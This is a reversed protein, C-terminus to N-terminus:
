LCGGDTQPKKGCLWMSYGLCLAVAGITWAAGPFFAPEGATLNTLFHLFICPIISGFRCRIGGWCIGMGFALAMQLLTYFVDAGALLNAGHLLAFVAASLLIGQKGPVYCLFIGRFAIEEVVCVWLMVFIEAWGGFSLPGALLNAAPLLGYPLLWLLNGKPASLWDAGARLLVAVLGACYLALLLATVRHPHGMRASMMQGLTYCGGYALAWIALATVGRGCKRNNM